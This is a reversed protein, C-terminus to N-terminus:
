DEDDWYGPYGNENNDNSWTSQPWYPTDWQHKIIDELRKKRRTEIWEDWWSKEHEVLIESM